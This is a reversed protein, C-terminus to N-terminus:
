VTTEVEIEAILNAPVTSGDSRIRWQGMSLYDVLEQGPTIVTGGAPTNPNAYNRPDPQYVCLINGPSGVPNRIVLKQRSDEGFRVTTGSQVNTAWVGASYIAKFTRKYGATGYEVNAAGVVASASAAGGGVGLQDLLAQGQALAAAGQSRSPLMMTSLVAQRAAILAQGVTDSVAATAGYNLTTGNVSVGDKTITIEM